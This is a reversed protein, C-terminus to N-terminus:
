AKVLNCKGGLNYVKEKECRIWDLEQSKPVKHM